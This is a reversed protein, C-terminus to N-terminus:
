KCIVNCYFLLDYQMYEITTAIIFSLSQCKAQCLDPSQYSNYYLLIVLFRKENAKSVTSYAVFARCQHQNFSNRNVGEITFQRNYYKFTQPKTRTFSNHSVGNIHGLVFTLVVFYFFIISLLQLNQVIHQLCVVSDLITSNISTASVTSTTVIHAYMQTEFYSCSLYPCKSFYVM